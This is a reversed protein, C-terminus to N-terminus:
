KTSEGTLLEAVTEPGVELAWLAPGFVESALRLFDPFREEALPDRGEFALRQHVDSLDGPIRRDPNGEAEAVLRRRRGELEEGTLAGARSAALAKAEKWSLRSTHSEAACLAGVEDVITDAAKWSLKPGFALPERLGQLYLAVMSELAADASASGALGFDAIPSPGIHLSVPRVGGFDVRLAVLHYIWLSLLDRPDTGEDLKWEPRWTERPRTWTLRNKIGGNGLSLEVRGKEHLGALRGIIRCDGVVLDVACSDLREGYDITRVREELKKVDELRQELQARGLRGHSLRGEAALVEGVEDLPVRAEIVLEMLRENLHWRELGRELNFPEVDNDEVAVTEAELNLRERLFFRAPHRFFRVLRDLAIIHLEERPPKLPQDVFAPRERLRGGSETRSREASVLAARIDAAFSPELQARPGETAPTDASGEVLESPATAAADAPAEFYRRSFASLPHEVVVARRARARAEGDVPGDTMALAVAELLEGVVVSPPRPENTRVDRGVYSLHLVDRAALVAELFLYRDDDRRARDGLKPDLGILDWTSRHGLRPFAGDDLGLLCVVRAPVNRLPAMTCFVTQGSLFAWAGAEEGLGELLAARVVALPVKGTFGSAAAHGVLDGLQARIQEVDAREDESTPRFLGDILEDLRQQWEAPSRESRADRDIELLRGRLEELSGLIRAGVGAVNAEPLVGAFLTRGDGGMAYGLMLRDLGFEWTHSREAPLGRSLRDQEDIGWRVGAQRLWVRLQGVEAEDLGFRTRGAPLDLVRLVDGATWRSAPLDLVALFTEVLARELRPRRDAITFPLRLGEPAAGFVAQVLPAYTDIDPVLVRVDHPGLDPRTRFLHLLQDHLVEVERMASHCVHVRISDDGRPRPSPGSGGIVGREPELPRRNLIDRQLARLLTLGTGAAVEEAAAASHRGSKAARARNGAPGKSDISEPRTPEVPDDFAEEEQWGEEEYIQALADRGTRGCSALLPHGAETHLAQGDRGRAAAREELRALVPAPLDELWFERSPDLIFLHVDSQKAAARLTKLQIPALNPVTFIFIREPLSGPPLGQTRAIGAFDLAVRARHLLHAARPHGAVVRRWLEAQWLEIRKRGTDAGSEALSTTPPAGGSLAREWAVMVEPRFVLYEDFTPALRSAIEWLVLPAVGSAGAGDGGGRETATWAALAEALPGDRNLAALSGDAAPVAMRSAEFLPGDRGQGALLGDAAAVTGSPAEFLPGDRGQGDLSGDAAPATERSAEFPPGDRSGGVPGSTGPERRASGGPDLATGAGPPLSASAAATLAALEQYIRWRLVSEPLPDDRGLEPLAARWIRWVQVAPLVFDVAACVGNRAALEFALWRQMGRNPVVIPLPAYISGRTEGVLEALRDKLRELRNGRHITLM